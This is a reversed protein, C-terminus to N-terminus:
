AYMLRRSPHLGDATKVVFSIFTYDSSFVHFVCSSGKIWQVGCGCARM